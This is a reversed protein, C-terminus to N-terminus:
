LFRVRPRIANLLLRSLAQSLADVQDDNASLPFAACEDVVAPTFPAFEPLYVNRAEAFPSVAAARALKSGEPQVAVLGSISKSLASIVAPGNAKDEVCKAVADPWKSSLSRFQMCTEVFSWRGRVQDLLYADPGRRGWVQGVVFDSSDTDKFAMDWSQIVEDFTLTLCSGDDQVVWQPTQYFQWWERHFILGEGPSPRGQYLASWTRAGVDSEIDEWDCCLRDPHKTCGSRLVHRGRTSILFQGPERGLPDTEGQEPRHDARAPLNIVTWGSPDDAILRGALDDAHWRTMILVIPTDPSFRTRVTGTWWEWADDRQSPSDAEKHGKHPDDIVMLDVASGTLAGGVGVCYVTGESGSLAWDYAASRDSSIKLGLEPHAKIDNRIARGWRHARTAEYSSIAIRLDPNRLLMWLPFVRSVRQSNHTPILGRGALFTRDASDVEICRTPVSTVPLVSAVGNRHRAKRGGPSGNLRAAKRSLRFVPLSTTFRIRWRPGADRGNLTARSEHVKSHIGLSRTLTLVDDALRQCTSTFECRSYGSENAYCSGDTDMLGQLLCLRQKEGARLYTTPIHKGGLVGLQSLVRRVPSLRSGWGQPVLSYAYPGSIKRCPVGAARIHEAIEEEAVTIMAGNSHGDGLWAGLVYPDLPLDVEPLELPGPVAVGYRVPDRALVRTDVVVWPRIGGRKGNRDQVRWLHDGDAVLQSGNAFTVSWCDLVQPSYAATVTCPRGDGGFVADGARLDGMATWGCPTAIPTDLALGKGEQPAISVILRKTRNEALDVLASDVLELAPTQVIRPDLRTALAGPTAFPTKKAEFMDLFASWTDPSIQSAM